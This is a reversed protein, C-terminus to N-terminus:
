PKKIKSQVVTPDFDAISASIRKQRFFGEALNWIGKEM